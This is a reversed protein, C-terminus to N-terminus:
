TVASSPPEVHWELSRPTGLVPRLHRQTRALEVLAWLERERLALYTTPALVIEPGVRDAVDGPMDVPFSRRETTHLTRRVGVPEVGVLTPAVEHWPISTTRVGWQLELGDPTLHFGGAVARELALPVVRASLALAALVFLACLWPVSATAVAMVIAALVPLAALCWPTVLAASSRLVATSPAGSPAVTVVATGSRRGIWWWRTVAEAVWAVAGVTCALFTAAVLWVVGRPIEPGVDAVLVWVGIGGFFALCALEVVLLAAIVLRSETDLARRIARPGVRAGWAGASGYGAISM